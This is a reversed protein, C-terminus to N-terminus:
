VAILLCERIVIEDREAIPASLAAYSSRKCLEVWKLASVDALFRFKIFSFFLLLFFTVLTSEINAIRNPLETTINLIRSALSRLCGIGEVRSLMQTKRPFTPPM